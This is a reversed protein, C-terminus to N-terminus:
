KGGNEYHKSMEGMTESTLGRMHRPADDMPNKGSSRVKSEHVLNEDGMTLDWEKEKNRDPGEEKKPHVLDFAVKGVLKEYEAVRRADHARDKPM